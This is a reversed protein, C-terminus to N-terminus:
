DGTPIISRLQIRLEDVRHFGLLAKLETGTTFILLSPVAVLDLQAVLDKETISDVRYFAIQDAFEPVVLRLEREALACIRRRNSTVFVAAPLEADLVCFKFRKQTLPELLPSDSRLPSTL